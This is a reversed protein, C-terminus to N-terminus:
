NNILDDLLDDLAKNEDVKPKAELTTEASPQESIVMKQNLDELVKEEDEEDDYEDDQYGAQYTGEPRKLFEKVEGLGLVDEYIHKAM